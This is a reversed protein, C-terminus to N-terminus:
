AYSGIPKILGPHLEEIVQRLGDQWKIRCPGTISLRKTVDGVSGLSAGPQPKVMVQPTLGILGAMYAIWQQVAVPEDGCFNVINAPVGAVGLLPEIMDAVDDGHIPSYPLPDWRPEILRGAILADLHNIPLGGRPGYASGMRAITVPLNFARACFRAVAEECNKSISYSAPIAQMIDGLPDDERFAHWPDPHPKYVSLTSMVLAAKAKRCHELLLGCSEANTRIARDYSGNEFNIAIHVLYTFDRPLDGFDCEYLDVKRTKVGLAEVEDRQAPDSFRAIGWVENDRALKKTVHWAIKGAPGTILIKEGSLM